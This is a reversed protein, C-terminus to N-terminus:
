KGWERVNKCKEKKLSNTGLIEDRAETGVKGDACEM